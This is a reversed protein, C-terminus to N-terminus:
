LKNEKGTITMPQHTKIIVARILVAEAERMIDTTIRVRTVPIHVIVQM